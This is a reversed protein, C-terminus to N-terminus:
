RESIGLKRKLEPMYQRSIIIREGNGLRAELRAGLMPSVTEIHAINVIVSKSIRQFDTNAYMEEIEYLKHRVEYVAKECYAFLKNDVSEFYYIDQPALQVMAKGDYGTLRSRGQRIAYILKILEDDLERCRIVIEDEAGEPPTEIIIRM